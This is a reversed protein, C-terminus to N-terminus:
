LLCLFASGPGLVYVAFLTVINSLGPKIGPIPTLPPINSEIVFVTLAVAALLATVALKKTKM